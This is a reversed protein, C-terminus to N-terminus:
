WWLHYYYKGFLKLGKDIRKWDEASEDGYRKDEDELFEFTWIMEDLIKDWKKETLEGPHGNNLEKFRKLRPVIHKALTHDLCWTEDDSWGRTRRQWWFRISRKILSLKM